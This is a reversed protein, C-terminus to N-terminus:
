RQGASRLPRRMKRALPFPLSRTAAASICRIRAPPPFPVGGHSGFAWAAEAPSEAHDNQNAGGGQGNQEPRRREDLLQVGDRSRPRLALQAKEGLPYADLQPLLEAEQNTASDSQRAIAIKLPAHIAKEKQAFRVRLQSVEQLTARENEEANGQQTAATGRDGRRRKPM